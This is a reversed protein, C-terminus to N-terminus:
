FNPTGTYLEQNVQIGGGSQISSSRILNFLIVNSVGIIGGLMLYKSLQEQSFDEKNISKNVYYYLGSLFVSVLVIIIPNNLCLM